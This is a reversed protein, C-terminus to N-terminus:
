AHEKKADKQVRVPDRMSEKKEDKKEDKKEGNDKIGDKMASFADDYQKTLDNLRQELDKLNEKAETETSDFKGLADEYEKQRSQSAKTGEAKLKGSAQLDKEDKVLEELKSKQSSMEGIDHELREKQRPMRTHVIYSAETIKDVEDELAAANEKGLEDRHMDILRFADNKERARAKLQDDMSKKLAYTAAGGAKNDGNCAQTASGAVQQNIKDKEEDYFERVAEQKEMEEAYGGDRGAKDAADLIEKTIDAPPDKLKSPFDKFTGIDTKAQSEDEKLGKSESEVRAPFKAAYTGQDSETEPHNADKQECAALPLAFALLGVAFLSRLRTPKTHM